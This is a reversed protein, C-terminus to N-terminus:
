REKRRLSGSIGTRDSRSRNPLSTTPVTPAASAGKPKEAYPSYDSVTFPNLANLAPYPRPPEGPYTKLNGSLGPIGQEVQELPTTAKHNEPDIIHNVWTLLSDMPVAQRGLNGFVKNIATPDGKALDGMAGLNQLYSQDGFFQLTGGLVSASKQFWDEGFSKPDQQTYYKLASAMAVPYALPGLKSYSVWKDGIKLSYPQYGHAYFFDRQAPDTPVAWTSDGNMAIASAAGMVLTGTLIKGVQDIKNPNKWLTAVGLPSNEIGMKLINYGANFFPVFLNGVPNRQFNQGMKGFSADLSSLVQGQGSENKPDLMKRFVSYTSFEDVQKDLDNKAITTGQRSARELLAERQGEGVMTKFMADMGDLLRFITRAPATAAARTPVGGLDPQHSVEIGKVINTAKEVAKPLANAMGKYFAPVESVYRQRESGTLMSAVKDAAGSFLKNAPATVGAQVLNSAVNTAHTLPGSLMNGMRYERLIDLSKEMRGKSADSIDQLIGEAAKNRLGAQDEPIKQYEEAKAVLKEALDSDLGKIGFRKVAL